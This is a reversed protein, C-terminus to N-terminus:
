WKLINQETGRLGSNLAYQFGFLDLNAKDMSKSCARSLHFLSRAASFDIDISDDRRRKTNTDSRKTGLRVLDTEISRGSTSFPTENVMGTLSIKWGFNLNGELFTYSLYVPESVTSPTSNYKQVASNYANLANIYNNKAYNASNLSYQTPNWNHSNVAYEYSSEALDLSFRKSNVQREYFDKM